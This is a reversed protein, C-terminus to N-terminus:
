PYEEVFIEVPAKRFNTVIAFGREHGGHEELQKLKVRTRAATSQSGDGIGSLELREPPVEDGADVPRVWYDCGEDTTSRHVVVRGLVQHAAAIGVAEGGHEATRKPDALWERENPEIPTRVIMADLREDARRVLAPDELRRGHRRELMVSAAATLGDMVRRAVWPHDRLTRLDLVLTM